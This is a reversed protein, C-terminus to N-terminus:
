AVKAGWYYLHNPDPAPGPDKRMVERDVDAKKIADNLKQHGIEHAIIGCINKHSVKGPFMDIKGSDRYALALGAAVM